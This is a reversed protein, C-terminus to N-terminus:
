DTAGNRVRDWTISSLFETVNDIRGGLEARQGRFTGGAYTYVEGVGRQYRRDFEAALPASASDLFSKVRSRWDEALPEMDEPAQPDLITRRTLEAGEEIVSAM